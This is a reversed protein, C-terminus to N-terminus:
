TKAIDKQTEKDVRRIENSLSKSIADKGKGVSVERSQQMEKSKRHQTSRSANELSVRPKSIKTMNFPRGRQNCVTITEGEQNLKRKALKSFVREEDKILPEDVPKLLTANLTIDKKFAPSLEVTTM